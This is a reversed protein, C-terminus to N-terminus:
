AEEAEYDEAEYTTDVDPDLENWENVFRDNDDM